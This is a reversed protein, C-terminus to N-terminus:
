EDDYDSLEDEDDQDMENGIVDGDSHPLDEDMVEEGYIDDEHADLEGRREIDESEDEMRRM